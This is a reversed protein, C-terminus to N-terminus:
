KKKAQEALRAVLFAYADKVAGSFVGLKTLSLTLHLHVGTSASGTTGAHGVVQGSTVKAGIELKPASELHCYGFYVASQLKRPVKIVLVHGLADSWQNLVVTADNVALVPTGAAFGNYDCGRHGNPHQADKVGFAPGLKFKDLPQRWLGM